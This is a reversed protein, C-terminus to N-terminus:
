ARRRWTGFRYYAASCILITVSAFPFSWWIAEVGFYRATVVCLPIRVLWMAFFIFLLPALVAGAARQLSTLVISVSFFVFGWLAHNNVVQAIALAEPDSLFLRMVQRNFLYILVVPIFTVAFGLPMGKWALQNVRDWRNAGIAQAGMATVATGLAAGPMQVYIWLQTAAGYAAATPVGYGNVLRIMALASGTVVITTLGMPVGRTILLRLIAPDPKLYRWTEPRPILLSRRAHLFGILLGLSVVQAVLTATASGAVGMAPFPGVGIILLPNLVIDLAVALLSFYLPTRSDGAGRQAMQIYNFFFMAPMAFFIVRLYAIAQSLAAAPTGMAALLPSTLWFGAVAISVSIVALLTTCTGVTRQVRVTDRAGIAQAVLVNAAMALGSVCGILFALLLNANFTAALAAPGLVHSVWITNVVTNAQQLVNAAMVPLSFLLLTRGVPGGTLDRTGRVGAPATAAGAAPSVTKDM